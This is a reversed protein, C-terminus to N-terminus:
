TAMCKCMSLEIGNAHFEWHDGVLATLEPSSSSSRVEAGCLPYVFLAPGATIYVQVFVSTRICTIIRPESFM